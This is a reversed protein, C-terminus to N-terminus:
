AEAFVLLGREALRSLLQRVDAEINVGRYQEGLAQAIAKVTRKGDCLELVVGATSNLVLAGEPFLLLHRKRVDDWRLRVGRVLRPRAHPEVIQPSDSM